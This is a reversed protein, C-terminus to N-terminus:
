DVGPADCGEVKQEKSIRFWSPKIWYAIYLCCYTILWFLSIATWLDLIVKQRSNGDSAIRTFARVFFVILWLYYVIKFVTKWRKTVEDDNLISKFM